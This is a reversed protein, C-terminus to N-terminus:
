DKERIASRLEPESMQKALIERSKFTRNNEYHHTIYSSRMIDITIGEVKTISRLMNLLSNATIPRHVNKYDFLYTRPYKAYSDFLLKILSKDKIDIYSLDTNKSYTITNSVKDKNIIYMARNNETDLYVYNEDNKIDAKKTIFKATIYFNTRAPPQKVLLMLLLYKYHEYDNDIKKMDYNDLIDTFYDHDRYNVKEKEDLENDGEEDDRNHKIQYGLNRIYDTDKNTPDNIDFWRAIMFYISEKSSAGWKDNNEIAKQIVSVPIKKLYDEKNLKATIKIVKQDSTLWNLFWLYRKEHLETWTKNNSM